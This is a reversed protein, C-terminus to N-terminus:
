GSAAAHCRGSGSDITKGGVARFAWSYSGPRLTLFLVGFGRDYRFRSTRRPTRDLEYLSRGGTGVVFQRIGDAAPRGRPDQQDFREYSHDHGGLVVDARATHLADWLPAVGPNDGHLGSSFRPHHWYALTCRGRNAALDRRLWAVQARPTAGLERNSCSADTCSSDLAIVHWDALDYSYWARGPRGARRGFYAFYGAATPSTKYEHNGPAPFLRAKYAGWTDGFAGRSTFEAETASDYQVDGLLAVANPKHDRVLGATDAHRCTTATTSDGANCAIDGVAALVRDSASPPPPAPAAPVNDRGDGGGCGALALALAAVLM